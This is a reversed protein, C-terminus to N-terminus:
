RSCRPSLPLPGSFRGPGDSSPVALNDTALAIVREYEGRLYHAHVLFSTTVIRLRLDGLHEALDLAKTGTALASAPEGFHTHAATMFACVRGRRRDDSLREALAEAERLCELLSQVDGLQTLVPRLELRTDFAQELMAQSEPLAEIIRLTQEFWARADQLAWRGIAKLGAQRLYPIARDRLGGRQAHHALREIQEGLRDGYLMEIADVIRAHLTRRREQLLGGYAVEHTLTHTFTHALDSLPGTEFLFEAAQLRDLRRRLAADSEGAIAQLLVFPVDKGVVSAVQLLRKDEFPLRDIRAALVAQVTAPVQLDSPEHALHYAGREGTLVQTEVLARVSEELFLPNGQTRAILLHKM